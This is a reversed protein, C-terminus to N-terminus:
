WIAGREDAHCGSDAGAGELLEYRGTAFEETITRSSKSPTRSEFSRAHPEDRRARLALGAVAGLSYCGWQEYGSRRDYEAILQACVAMAALVAIRGTGRDAASRGGAHAATAM